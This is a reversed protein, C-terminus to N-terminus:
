LDQFALFANVLTLRRFPDNQAMHQTSFNTDYYGMKFMDRILKAKQGVTSKSVGFYQCITDTSIYPQTNKDFLFNISGIAYVVAAAWIEIRGSLFPVTRKRAIKEILKRCLMDYEQDIHSQCFTTTLEIFRTQIIQKNQKDIM